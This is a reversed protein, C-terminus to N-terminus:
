DLYRLLQHAPSDFNGNPISERFFKLEKSISNNATPYLKLFDINNIYGLAVAEIGVLVTDKNWSSGGLLAQEIDICLNLLTDIEPRAEDWYGSLFNLAAKMEIFGDIMAHYVKTDAGRVSTNGFVRGLLWAKELDAKVTETGLHAVLCRSVEDNSFNVFFKEVDEEHLEYIEEFFFNELEQNM